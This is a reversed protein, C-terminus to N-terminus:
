EDVVPGAITKRGTFMASVIGSGERVETVVVAAVHVVVASALTYFSYEHVVAFPRRFARMAQLSAADYMEPTRPMLTGPDVGPAALWQTIWHGFPPYFVDTGALVLGTTGQIIMLLLLLAIWARGAPNHGLYHQPRGAIFAALYARMAAFYGKGGPLTARWRAYRNGLFGWVFRWLLNLVFVYGISVHVRKLTLEGAGPLGIADASLIVLGIGALAIMCLVNIWHFWRTGADWVAYAKLESM